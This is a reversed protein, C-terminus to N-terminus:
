KKSSKRIVITSAGPKIEQLRFAQDVGADIVAFCKKQVQDLHCEVALVAVNQAVLTSEDFIDLRSGADISALVRPDDIKFPYSFHEATQEIRPMPQIEASIVVEGAHVQCVSYGDVFDSRRVSKAAPATWDLDDERIWHNVVLERKAPLGAMGRKAAPSSCQNAVTVAPKYRAPKPHKLIWKWGGALAGAWMVIAICLVCASKVAYTM